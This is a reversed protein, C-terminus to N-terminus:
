VAEPLWSTLKAWSAAVANLPAGVEVKLPIPITCSGEDTWTADLVAEDVVPAGMGSIVLYEVVVGPVSQLEPMHFQVGTACTDPKRECAQCSKVCVHIKEDLVEFEKREVLAEVM